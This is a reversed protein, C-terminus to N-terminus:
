SSCAIVSSSQFLSHIFRHPAQPRPEAEGIRIIAIGSVLATVMTCILVVFNVMLWPGIYGSKKRIAGYILMLDNFAMLYFTGTFCAVCTLTDMTRFFEVVNDPFERRIVMYLGYSGIILDTAGFLCGTLIVGVRLPICCLCKALRM